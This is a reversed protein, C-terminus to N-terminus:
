IFDCDITPQLHNIHEGISECNVYITYECLTDFWPVTNKCVRVSVSYTFKTVSLDTVKSIYLSM